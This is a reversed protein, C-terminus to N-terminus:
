PQEQSKLRQQPPSPFGALSHRPSNDPKHSQWLLILWARIRSTPPTCISLSVAPLLAPAPAPTLPQLPPSSPCHCLTVPDHHSISPCQLWQARSHCIPRALLSLNLIDSSSFDEVDLPQVTENYLHCFQPGAMNQSPWPCAHKM